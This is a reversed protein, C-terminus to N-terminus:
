LFELFGVIVYAFAFSIPFLVKKFPNYEIKDKLKTHKYVLNMLAIFSVQIIAFKVFLM